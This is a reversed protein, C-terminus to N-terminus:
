IREKLYYFMAVMFMEPSLVVPYRLLNICCKPFFLIPCDKMRSIELDTSLFLISSLWETLDPLLVLIAEMFNGLFLSFTM